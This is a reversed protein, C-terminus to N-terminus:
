KAPRLYELNEAQVALTKNRDHVMTEWRGDDTQKVIKVIWGNYDSHSQLGRLRM